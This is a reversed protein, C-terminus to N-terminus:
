MCVAYLVCFIYVSDTSPKSVTTTKIIISIIHRYSLIYVLIYNILFGRFSEVRFDMGIVGEFLISVKCYMIYINATKYLPCRQFHQCHHM